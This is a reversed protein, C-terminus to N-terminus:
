SVLRWLDSISAASAAPSVSPSTPHILEGAPVPAIIRMVEPRDVPILSQCADELLRVAHQELYKAQSVDVIIVPQTPLARARMIVPVLARYNMATFCGTVYVTASSCMLDVRVLARLKHNM